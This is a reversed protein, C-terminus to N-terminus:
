AHRPKKTERRTSRSHVTPASASAPTTRNRLPQPRSAAVAAAAAATAARQSPRRQLRTRDVQKAPLPRMAHPILASLPLQDQREAEEFEELLERCNSELDARRLWDPSDRSNNLPTGEWKVLYFWVDQGDVDTDLEMRVIREVTGIDEESGSDEPSLSESEPSDSMLGLSESGTDEEEEESSDSESDEDNWVAEEEEEEDDDIQKRKRRRKPAVKRKSGAHKKKGQSAAVARTHGAAAPTIIRASTVDASAFDVAPKTKSRGSTVAAAPASAPMATSRAKKGASAAKAVAARVGRAAAAASGATAQNVPPYKGTLDLYIQKFTKANVRVNSNSGALLEKQSGWMILHEPKMTQFAGQNKVFRIDRYMSVLWPPRLETQVSSPLAADVAGSARPPQSLLSAAVPSQHVRWQQEWFQTTWEALDPKYFEFLQVVMHPFSSIDHKAASDDSRALDENFLIL